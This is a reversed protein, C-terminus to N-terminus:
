KSGASEVRTLLCPDSIVEKVSCDNEIWLKVTQEFEIQSKSLKDRYGRAAQNKHLLQVFNYCATKWIPNQSLNSQMGANFAQMAGEDSKIFRLL